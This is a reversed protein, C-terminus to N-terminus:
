IGGGGGKIKRQTHACTKVTAIQREGKEGEAESPTKHQCGMQKVVSSPHVSNTSTVARVTLVAATDARGSRVMKRQQLDGQEKM